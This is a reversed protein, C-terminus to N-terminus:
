IHILNYFETESMIVANVCKKMKVTAAQTKEDAVILVDILASGNTKQIGGFKKIRNFATFRDLKILGGTICVNKNKIDLVMRKQGEM